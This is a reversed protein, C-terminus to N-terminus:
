WGVVSCFYLKEMFGCPSFTFKRKQVHHLLWTMGVPTLATAPM